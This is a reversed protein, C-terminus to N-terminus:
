GASRVLSIGPGDAAVEIRNRGNLKARYLGADARELAEAITKEVGFVVAVGVSLTGSINHGDIIRAAEAFRERISDAIEVAERTHTRPLLVAFEEGGLRGIIDSPRLNKQAVEAFVQLVRDGVAHGFTDNVAKFRDLDIALVTSPTGARRGRELMRQSTYLFARRNQLGTLSDTLSAIRHHTESREKLLAVMFLASGIFYIMSEIHILGYWNSFSPIGTPLAGRSVEEILGVTNMLGHLILVAGLPWRAALREKRRQLLVGAAIFFVPAIVALQL